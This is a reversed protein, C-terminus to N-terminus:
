IIRDVLGYKLCEKADLYKEDQIIKIVEDRDLRSCSTYIDLMLKYLMDMNHAEDEIGNQKTSGLFISPQHILMVSRRTMFRMEGCVSILTAASAVSGEVYTHIPIDFSNMYDCVNLASTLVGGPSQIHLKIPLRHDIGLEQQINRSVVGQTHINKKLQLCSDVTVDEYFFIEPVPTSYPIGKNEDFITSSALLLGNQILERRLMGVIGYSLITIFM